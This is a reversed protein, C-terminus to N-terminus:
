GAKKRLTERPELAGSLWHMINLAMQRNDIGPANMGMKGDVGALQASLEAAEGMVVVRGKGFELAVGQSRGAASVEKDGVDDTATDALKLIATSGAPGKLSQGTFTGIRNIRESEDRGRTIPHDGLLNKARTFLLAAPRGEQCNAQDRTVGKSMEVGFRKSLAEAADGMPQHDTILLLSGGDSVWDRVADSEAATFAPKAAEPDGMNEAGLANAIVLIECKELARRTFKERNPSVRYGDNAVLDAFPKYRGGATHFNYHAEDIMVRPHEQTYAPHAVKVNFGPDARQGILGL